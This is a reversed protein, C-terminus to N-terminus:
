CLPAYRPDQEILKNCAALVEAPKRRDLAQLIPKLLTKRQVLKELRQALGARNFPKTPLRGTG